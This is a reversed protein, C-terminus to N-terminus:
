AVGSHSKSARPNGRVAERDQTGGSSCIEAGRERLFRATEEANLGDPIRLLDVHCVGSAHLFGCESLIGLCTNEDLALGVSSTIVLVGTPNEKKSGGPHELRAIRRIITRM